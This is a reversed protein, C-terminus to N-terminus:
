SITPNLTRGLLYDVSCNFLDSLKILANAPINGNVLWNYYTKREVELKKALDEQSIKYRAREAEIAPYKYERM